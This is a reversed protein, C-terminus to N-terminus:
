KGGTGSKTGLKEYVRVTGGDTLPRDAGSVVRTDRTIEGDRIAAATDSQDLIWVEVERVKWETGLIDEQKEAVYV